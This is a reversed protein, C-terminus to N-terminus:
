WLKSFFVRVCTDNTCMLKGIMRSENNLMECFDYCMYCDDSEDICRDIINWFQNLVDDSNYLFKEFCSMRCATVVELKLIKMDDLTEDNIIVYANIKCDIILYTVVIWQLLFKRNVYFM